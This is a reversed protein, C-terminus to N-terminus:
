NEDEWDIEDGYFNGDSYDAGFNSIDNGEQDNEEEIQQQEDNEIQQIDRDLEEVNDDVAGSLQDILEERFLTGQEKVEKDFTNKDYTVLGKQAVNWRGMKYIKELYKVKREDNDMNKFFDTIMDKEKKKSRNMRSNIEKYSFDLQKKNEQDINLFTVMLSASRRKLDEINGLTIHIESMDREFEADDENDIEYVTQLQEVTDTLNRIENRRNQKKEQIDEKLLDNNDSLQIFEYLTSYFCYSMLLYITKKDFLLYFANDNKHIPTLIPLHQMFINIDILRTQLEQLLKFIITDQKFKNIEEYYEKVFKSIISEHQKSLGWHKPVYVENLDKNNLIIEPFVKSMNFVSTKMFHTITYLGEEYYLGSTKQDQDINWINVNALFGELKEFERPRLNSYKKLFNTIEDFMKQNCKALYNKLREIEENDEMVMVGPNYKALVNTLLKRLPEEVVDCSRFELHQLLDILITIQSYEQPHIVEVKNIQNIIQMLQELHAEDYTKGNNKLYQIKEKLSKKSEYEPPPKNICVKKLYNPIPVDRDFKCYRIFSSYINDEFHDNSLPPRIISTDKNHFFTPATTLDKTNSVLVSMKKSNNIYNIINPDEEIFYHLATQTKKENCCSNQLFPINSSTKLILDKNVVVSKISEIIGYGFQVIKSNFVALQEKQRSNGKRMLEILEDRVENSINHLSKIITFPVVPPTFSTWKEIKHEDPINIEPNLILYDRKNKILEIIDLRTMLYEQCIRKMGKIFDDMPMKQISDWPETSSKSKHIVCAIYKIGSEDTDNDIPYGSFSRVCGPATIKPKFPPTSTQIAILTTTSVITIITQNRYKIFPPPSKGKKKIMNESFTTYKSETMIAKDIIEISVRLVFERVGDVSVGINRGITSLINYIIQPIEGEYVIDKKKLAEEMVVAIDKQIIDNTSLKFGALDFGEESSFDLKRIVMGSYKDVYSDGDDSLEGQTNCLELQKLQYDKGSVFTEALEHLFTPLLKLNTDKCYYWYKHEQLENEMASRCHQDVFKIIDYQKKVFDDQSLILDILETNPSKQIKEHTITNGIEFALNNARYLQIYQLSQLKKIKKVENTIYEELEREKDENSNTLRTDFENILKNKFDYKIKNKSETTSDCTMSKMNKSCENSINCFLTNNDIFTNDSVNNDRVWNNKVRKYYELKSTPNEVYKKEDDNLAKLAENIVQLVAYEGDKVIRKGNVLLRAMEDSKDRPCSHFQVLNESLFSIFDEQLMKKKNESYKDLIFYPTDDYEKDFFIEEGNDKQLESLSSYRKALFRRSCDVAKIKENGYMDETVPPQNIISLFQEPIVLSILMFRIMISFLNGYDKSNLIILIESTSTYKTKDMKKFGYVDEVLEFLEPKEDLIRFIQNLKLQVNFNYNKFYTYDKAKLTYKQNFDIMREKIFYRIDKYHGFSINNSYVLFPEIARIVDVLSLKDNMNKQLIRLLSRTNPIIVNLFKQLKEKDKFLSEHLVYEKMNSLFSTKVEEELKEYDIEKDFSNVIYQEINTNKKLLRFLLLYDQSLSSRNLINTGPLDISSFKVVSQPLMLVSKMCMSDNNTINDRKYIKKGTKTVKQELMSVGLNYRQIVFRQKALEAKNNISTYSSNMDGKVASSYFDDLNNIIADFTTMVENNNPNLCDDNFTPNEFPTMIPNTRQIMNKYKAIDGQEKNEFYDEQINKLSALEQDDSLVVVDNFIEIDTNPQYIKRRSSVVPILWKLSKDMNKISQIIPKHNMGIRIYDRVNGLDDIKSFQSRLEKFREILRHINEMVRKTRKVNPITSLLEDMLDNVQTEISYVKNKESVEVVQGVDMEGVGFVISNANAYLNHLEERINVDAEASEPISILYEGTATQEMSAKEEEYIEGEEIGEKLATLSLVKQLAIPKKRIVIKSIPIDERLGKYEFDIYFVDLSPYMTIEIQDEELNTIEGTIITPFEGEFHIDVWTKPLLNNQRAYGKEEARNLLHVQKISEDTLQGEEDVNLIYPQLNSVNTIKIKTNDIYTIYFTKEHFEINNPSIIEIIDGYELNEINDPTKDEKTIKPVSKDMNQEESM